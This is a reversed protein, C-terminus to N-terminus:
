NRINFCGLKYHPESPEQQGKTEWEVEWSPGELKSQELAFSDMGFGEPRAYKSDELFCPSSPAEQRVDEWIRWHSSFHSGHLVESSQRM